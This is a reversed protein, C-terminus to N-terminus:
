LTLRLSPPLPPAEPRGEEKCPGRTILPSISELKGWKGSTSVASSYGVRAPGGPFQGPTHDEGDM